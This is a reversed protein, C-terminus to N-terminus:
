PGHGFPVAHELGAPAHDQDEGVLSGVEVVAPRERCEFMQKFVEGAAGCFIVERM